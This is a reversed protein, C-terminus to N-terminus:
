KKGTGRVLNLVRQADKESQEYYAAYQAPDLYRMENGQQDFKKVVDPNQMVKKFANSLVGSVDAPLGAPGIVGMSSYSIVNLGQELATPVDQLFKNRKEGTTGIVRMRGGKMQALVVSPNLSTVDAHGGLVATVAPPAGDFHVFAFKIGAADQLFYGPFAGTTLMGTTAFKVGEPKAKAADVLDKLNKLPSETAVSIASSHAEVGAIFSVDKRGFTAKSEPDMYTVQVTPESSTALTYGDPKAHVLETLGVMTSAGPKNLVEVQTGLEKELPDALIRAMLDIPGGAAYPVIITIPKGKTPFDVKPVATPQATPAPAQTPAAAAAPKTPEAPKAPTAPAQTPAPAPASPACGATAIWAAILVVSLCLSLRKM